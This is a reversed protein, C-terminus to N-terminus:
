PLTEAREATANGTCAPENRYVFVARRSWALLADYERVEVAALWPETRPAYSMLVCNAAAPFELANYWTVPDAWATAGAPEGVLHPYHWGMWEFGADVSTPPLGRAVAAEGAKWRAASSANEELLIALSVLAIALVAAAAAPLRARGGLGPAAPLLVLVAVAVAWLYRDYLGSTGAAARVFLFAATLALYAAITVRAARGAASVPASAHERRRDLAQAIARAALAALLVGGALAALTMLAWISRPFLVPRGPLAVDVAGVRTLANGAFLTLPGGISRAAVIGGVALVVLGVGVPWRSLL